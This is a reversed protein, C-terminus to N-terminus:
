RTPTSLSRHWLRGHTKALEDGELEASDLTLRSNGQKGIRFSAGVTKPTPTQQM